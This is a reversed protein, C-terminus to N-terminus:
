HRIRRHTRKSRRGNKRKKSKNRRKRTGGKVQVPPANSLKDYAGAFKIANLNDVAQKNVDAFSSGPVSNATPLTPVNVTMNAAAGGRHKRSRRRRRRSSGKQGAGMAKSAEASEALSAMTKASAANIPGGEVGTQTFGKTLPPGGTLTIKGDNGVISPLEGM